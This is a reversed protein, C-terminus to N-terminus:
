DNKINEKNILFLGYGVVTWFFISIFNISYLILSEFLEGFIMGFFLICLLKIYESKGCILYKLFRYSIYMILITFSILNIIGGVVLVTLFINHFSGGKLSNYIVNESFYKFYSYKINNIGYGFIPKEKWMEIAKKWIDIRGNSSPDTLRVDLSINDNEKELEKMKKDIFPVSKKNVYVKKVVSSNIYLSALSNIGFVFIIFGLIIFISKLFKKLIEKTKMLFICYLVIMFIVSLIAGRSQQLSFHILQFVINIKFYRNVKSDKYKSIFLLATLISVYCFIASINPNIAGWIRHNIVGYFSLTKGMSFMFSTKFTLLIFTFISSLFAIIQVVYTILKFLYEQTKPSYVGMIFCYVTMFSIHTINEIFNSSSNIITTIINTILLVSVLYIFYKDWYNSKIKVGLIIILNIINLVTLVKYFVDVKQYLFSSMSLISVIIFLIKLLLERTVNKNM